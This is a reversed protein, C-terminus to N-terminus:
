CAAGWDSTPLTPAEPSRTSIPLRDGGVVPRAGEEKGQAVYGMVRELQQASVLLGIQTDHNLGNSVRLGLTNVRTRRLMGVTRRRLCVPPWDEQRGLAIAELAAELASEEIEGRM